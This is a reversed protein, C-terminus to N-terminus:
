KIEKSSATAPEQGWNERVVLSQDSFFTRRGTSGFSVPNATLAYGTPTGQLIFKYGTKEGAALDGPILDAGAPGPQGSAPPGLEALTTAYRGFQSFYQTQATHITTLQRVAAMEQTHMRATNLRPVAIAAIILLIAVVILLEMLSFGRRLRRSVRNM